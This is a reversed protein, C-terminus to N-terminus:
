YPAGPACRRRWIPLTQSHLCWLFNCVWFRCCRLACEGPDTLNGTTNFYFRAGGGDACSRTHTRGSMAYNVLPKGNRTFTAHIQPTPIRM